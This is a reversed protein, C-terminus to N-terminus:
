KWRNDKGVEFHPIPILALPGSYQTTLHCIRGEKIEANEKYKDEKENDEEEGEKDDSDGPALIDDISLERIQRWSIQKM